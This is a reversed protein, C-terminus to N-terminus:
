CRKRQASVTNRMLTDPDGGSGERLTLGRKAAEEKIPDAMVGSLGGPVGLLSRYEGGRDQLISPPLSSLCSLLSFCRILTLFLCSVM